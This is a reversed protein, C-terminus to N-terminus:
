GGEDGEPQDSGVILFGVGLRNWERLIKMVESPDKSLSSLDYVVVCEMQGDRAAQMLREFEPRDLGSGSGRERYVFEPEMCGVEQALESCVMEQADFSIEAEVDYGARSRLYTSARKTENM